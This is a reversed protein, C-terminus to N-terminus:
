KPFGFNFPGIRHKKMFALGEPRNWAHIAFPMKKGALEFFTEPKGDLAFRAAEAIEPALLGDPTESRLLERYAMDESGGKRRLHALCRNRRNGIGALRALPILCRYFERNRWHNGLFRLLRKRSYMRADSHSLISRFAEVRRLSFGGNGVVAPITGDAETDWRAPVPAGIWDFGRECWFALEDRLVWVDLQCILLYDFNSFKQYFEKSLLLRSYDNISRFCTDPFRVVTAEPATKRYNSADLSEPGLLVLPWRHGLVGVTQRLSADEAPTPCPRHFPIVVATKM